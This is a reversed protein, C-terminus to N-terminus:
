LQSTVGGVEGRVCRIVGGIGLISAVTVEILQNELLNFAIADVVNQHKFDEFCIYHLDFLLFDILLNKSGVVEYDATGAGIEKYKFPRCSSGVACKM